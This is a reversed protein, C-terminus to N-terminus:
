FYAAISSRYADREVQGIVFRMETPAYPREAGTNRRTM